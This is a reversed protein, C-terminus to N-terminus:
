AGAAGDCSQCIPLVVRMITGSGPRSIVDLRGGLSLAYERSEYVGIGYGSGKTTAFPRFLKDRVFDADMGPGNDEVDVVAMKKTDSLRINVIGHHSAADVANQILHGIIATLREEDALVVANGSDVTLSVATEQLTRREAVMKELLPALAITKVPALTSTLTSAPSKASLQCLLRNLKEVSQRLTESADQQFDVNDRHRAMNAVILSLQSVANKLDHAVFAFRKNFADFQRAEVLAESAAQEALYSAAHRGITKLLDFDEWSLERHVRPRGVIIIGFLRDHRILPVVLWARSISSLWQPLASLGQYREPNRAFEDLDVVWYKRKFFEVMPDSPDITSDISNVKWRSCNWSSALVYKGQPSELWLAGDPSEIVDCVSRTVRDRLDDPNGSASITEIFRLWEARYDYKYKFFNKEILVRLYARASASSLPVALLLAAGFFFVAQLFSSWQGGFRRVYYGAGAMGILYLGSGFLTASHLVTRRSVVIAPGIKRNRAAYVVLFPLVFANTGGRALFLDASLRRFLLADAYLFFDYAFLAGVSICLYKINWFHSSPSNRFLNEVVLLGVLAFALHTADLFVAGGGGSGTGSSIGDALSLVGLLIGMGAIVVAWSSRAVPSVWYLLSVLLILWGCSRAIELVEGASGPASGIWLHHAIVAAWLSTALSAVAMLLGALRYEWWGIILFTLLFYGIATALHGVLGAELLSVALM